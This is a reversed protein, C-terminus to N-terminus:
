VHGHWGDSHCCGTGIIGTVNRTLIAATLTADYVKSSATIVPALAATNVTVGQNGNSTLFHADGAYTATILHTGGGVATPAYTVSCSASGGSGAVLACPSTTFTGAGNSGWTVNGTPTLTGSSRTVTVVCNIAPGGYTMVPTGAGCVVATTSAVPVNYTIRVQGAAGNGGNNTGSGSSRYAGGGGGGPATGVTGDAVRAPGAAAAM